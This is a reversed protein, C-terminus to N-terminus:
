RPVVVGMVRVYEYFPLECRAPDCSIVRRTSTASESGRVVRAIGHGETGSLLEARHEAAGRVECVKRMRAYGRAFLPHRVSAPM